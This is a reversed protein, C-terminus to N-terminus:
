EELMGQIGRLGSVRWIGSPGFLWLDRRDPGAFQMNNIDGGVEIRMILEGWESLVDVGSGAAGLIYGERSVHLGDDAFTEALWIPRKNTLYGGAPSPNIDFAYVYKGGFPDYTYRPVADKPVGEFNTVGTDSIYMTNGDPSIGIGNPQGLTNEVINLAGTSPRFRYTAPAHVPYVTVNIAYGYWADTFFIDGSHDIFVDNPSNLLTGYYNNVLTVVEGTNPDLKYIGPAQQVLSGDAPSPFSFSAESAWYIMGQYLKGGNVAYVPPNTTYNAITPPTDNLNIIRQQYEGQHPLSFIIVNLGPVYVPAEHISDNRTDFVRELKPASGLIDLGRAKDFVVFPTDELLAFSPDSPVSTEVFTDNEPDVGGSAYAREFPYPLVAAYNNVCAVNSADMLGPCRQVSPSSFGAQAAVHSGLLLVALDIPKSTAM